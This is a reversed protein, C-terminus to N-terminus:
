DSEEDDPTLSVAGSSGYGSEEDSDEAHIQGDVSPEEVLWDAQLPYMQRLRQEEGAPPTGQVWRGLLMLDERGRRDYMVGERLSGDRFEGVFTDGDDYELRGKGHARGAGDVPGLYLGEDEEPDLLRHSALDETWGTPYIKCLLQVISVSHGGGGGVVYELRYSCGPVARAVVEEDPGLVREPSDGHAYGESRYTGFLDCRAMVAGDADLLALGLRGKCNGWGQDQFLLAQVVVRQVAFELPASQVATHPEDDEETSDVSRRLAVRPHLGVLDELQLGEEQLFRQAAAQDTALERYVARQAQRLDEGRERALELRLRAVPGRTGCAAGVLGCAEIWESAEDLRGAELASRASAGLSCVRRALDEGPLSRHIRIYIQALERPTVRQGHSEVAELRLEAFQRAKHVYTADGLDDVFQEAAAIVEHFHGLEGDQLMKRATAAMDDLRREKFEQLKSKLHVLPYVDKKLRARSFPCSTFRLAGSEHVASGRDLVYGSSLVVPDKMLTMFLPDLLEEPADSTLSALHRSLFVPDRSASTSRELVLLGLGPNGAGGETVVERAVRNLEADGLRGALLKTARDLPVGAQLLERALQADGRAAAEAAEGCCGPEAM